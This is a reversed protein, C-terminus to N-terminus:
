EEFDPYQTPPPGKEAIVRPYKVGSEKQGTKKLSIQFKWDDGFDFWYFLHYGPPLPFVDTLRIRKRKKSAAGSEEDCGLSNRSDRHTKGTFFDYCHDSDFDTLSQIVGHLADLTTADDIEITREFPQQLYM